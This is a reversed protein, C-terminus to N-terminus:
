KTDFNKGVRVLNIEIHQWIPFKFLFLAFDELWMKNRMPCASEGLKHRFQVDVLNIRNVISCPRLCRM